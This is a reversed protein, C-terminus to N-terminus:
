KAFLRRFAEGGEGRQVAKRTEEVDRNLAEKARRDDAARQYNYIGYSLVAAPIGPLLMSLLLMMARRGNFNEAITSRPENSM